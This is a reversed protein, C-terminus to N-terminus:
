AILGSAFAKLHKLSSFERRIGGPFVVYIQGKVNRVNKAGFRRMADLRVRNRERCLEPFVCYGNRKFVACCQLVQDQFDRSAFEVVMSRPRSYAIELNRRPCRYCRHLDEAKLTKYINDKFFKMVIETPNEHPQEPIGTIRVVNGFARQAARAAFDKHMLNMQFELEKAQTQLSLMLGAYCPDAFRGSAVARNQM